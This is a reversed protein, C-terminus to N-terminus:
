DKLPFPTVVKIEEISLVVFIAFIYIWFRM